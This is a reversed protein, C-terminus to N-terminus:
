MIDIENLSKATELAEKRNNIKLKKYLNNIHCKVTSTEINLCNAIEKNTKYKGLLALIEKERLSLLNIQISNMKGIGKSYFYFFLFGTIFFFIALLETELNSSLSLLKLINFSLISLGILAVYKILILKSITTLKM